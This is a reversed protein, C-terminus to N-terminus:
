AQSCIITCTAFSGFSTTLLLAPESPPVTLSLIKYAYGDPGNTTPYYKNLTVSSGAAFAVVISQPNTGCSNCDEFTADYFDYSPSTPTSTPTVTPTATPTATVTPTPTPTPCLSCGNTPYGIFGNGSRQFTRSSGAVSVYFIDDFIMDGFVNGYPNSSLGIIATADCITTGQVTISVSAYEGGSCATSENVLSV